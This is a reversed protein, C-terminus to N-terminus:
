EVSQSENDKLWEEVIETMAMLATGTNIIGSAEKFDLLAEFFRDFTQLDAAFRRRQATGLRKLTEEIHDIETSLFMIKLEEFRLSQENIRAVEVNDLTDLLKEDLGSYVKYSIDAIEDWLERLIQPNDQGVLTNHSIQIAVQQSRSLNQDTYLILILPVGADTAVKTRHNGSLAVFEGNEKRWCFPLSSLNGDTQVNEMLQDYVRKPMYHANKEVPRIEGPPVVALKYPTVGALAQNLQSVLEPLQTQQDVRFLDGAM